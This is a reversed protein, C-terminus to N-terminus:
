LRKLSLASHELETGLIIKVMGLVGPIPELRMLNADFLIHWNACM